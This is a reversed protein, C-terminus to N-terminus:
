EGGNTIFVKSGNLLYSNGSKVAKTRIGGADSGANPETLAFAGIYQGSALKPLYHQKQQETGFYVIPNTGVSTHVSLIVGVAASVKSIQHVAQIYSTYYM